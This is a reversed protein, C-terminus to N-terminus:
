SLSAQQMLTQADDSADDAGDDVLLGLRLLLRDIRVRALSVLEAVEATTPPRTAHFVVAGTESESFTGDFLIGHFHLNVNLASGFEQCVVVGGTQGARAGEGV